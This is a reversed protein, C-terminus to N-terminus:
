AAKLIDVESRLTDVGSMLTDVGSMLTAVDPKLIDVDTKLIDIESRLEDIITQQQQVARVLPMVLESKMVGKLGNEPAAVAEPYFAEVEQAVFGEKKVGPNKSYEFERIKLGKIIDLGDKTSDTIKDKISASSGDVLAFTGGTNWIYGVQDGDGDLANVYYTNGSANDAGAQIQIGARNANNGDNFFNAVYDAVDDAVDLRYSPTGGIGVDDTTTLASASFTWSAIGSGNPTSADVYFGGTDTMALYYPTGDASHMIAYGPNSAGGDYVETYSPETAGSRGLVLSGSGSPTSGSFTTAYIESLPKTYSGINLTGSVSPILNNHFIINGSPWSQVHSDTGGNWLLFAKSMSADAISITPNTQVPLGLDTNVDAGDCVILSRASSIGAGSADPVGIVLTGTPTLQATSFVVRSDSDTGFVLPVDDNLLQGVSGSISITEYILITDTAPFTQIGIGSGPTLTLTDDSIDATISTQGPVAITSWYSTAGAGGGSGGVAIRKGLM